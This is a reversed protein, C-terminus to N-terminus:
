QHTMPKCINCSLQTGILFAINCLQLWRTLIAIQKSLSKDVISGIIHVYSSDFVRNQHYRQINM